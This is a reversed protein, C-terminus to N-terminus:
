GMIRVGTSFKIELSDKPSLFHCASPLAVTWSHTFSNAASSQNLHCYSRCCCYHNTLILIGIFWYLSDNWAHSIHGLGWESFGTPLSTPPRSGHGHSLKGMSFWAQMTCLSSHSKSKSFSEWGSNPLLHKSLTKLKRFDTSFRGLISHLWNLWKGGQDTVDTEKFYNAANKGKNDTFPLWRCHVQAYYILVM